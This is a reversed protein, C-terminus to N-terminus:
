LARELEQKEALIATIAESEM